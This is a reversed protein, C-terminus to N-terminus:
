HRRRNNGGGKNHPRNQRGGGKGGQNNRRGKNNTNSRRSSHKKESDFLGLEKVTEIDIDLQNNSLRKINKLIQEDEISEKNWTQFFGKMLRGIAVVAGEKEKPDDMAIAQDILIEVGRGYHRYKIENSYYQLREPKRDLVSADPKPFPGDIDLEFNSIIHLDDWVKQDTENNSGLDPNILKMLEVLTEAKKNRQEKDEITRLHAVLNQVNRGYERLKLQSRQTNYELSREM